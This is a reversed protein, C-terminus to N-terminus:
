QNLKKRLGALGALGFGLLLIPAPIPVANFTVQDIGYASIEGSDITVTGFADKGIYGWFGYGSYDVDSLIFSNGEVVATLQSSWSQNYTYDFGIFSIGSNFSLTTVSGTFGIDTDLYLYKAGGLTTNRSYFYETDLVKVADPVSTVSFSNFNIQSVAGSGPNGSVPYAEFDEITYTSVAAEFLARDTYVTGAHAYGAMMAIILCFISLYKKMM